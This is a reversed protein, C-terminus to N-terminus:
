LFASRWSRLKVSQELDFGGVREPRYFDACDYFAVDSPVCSGMIMLTDRALKAINPFRISGTQRWWLIADKCTRDGIKTFYFFDDIEDVRGESAIEEQTRAARFIDFEKDNMAEDKCSSDYGYNAVLIARIWLKLDDTSSNQNSTRPDLILALEALRSQMFSRHENLADMVQLAAKKVVMTRQGSTDDIVSQCHAALMDFILPQMALPVYQQGISSVTCFHAKCLFDKIGKLMRWDSDSLKHQGLKERLNEDNGIANFADRFKYCNEIMVFTSQWRMDVDLEPPGVMEPSAGLEVTLASFLEKLSLTSRVVKLLNRLAVVQNEILKMCNGVSDNIVHCICSVRFQENLNLGFDKHFEGKVRTMASLIDSGSDTTIARIKSQLGFDKIVSLVLESTSWETYPLPFYMFELIANKLEFKATIWHMTMVFHDKMSWNDVTLCVQFDSESILKRLLENSRDFEERMARVVSATNPVVYFKNLSRCFKQFSDTEVIGADLKNEVAFDILDSTISVRADSDLTRHRSMYGNERNRPKYGDKMLSHVTRLHYALTSPGTKSAYSQCKKVELCRM